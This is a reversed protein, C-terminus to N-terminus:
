GTSALFREIEILVAQVANDLQLLADTADTGNMLAREVQAALRRVEPLALNAAVGSLKHALAQAEPLNGLALSRNMGGVTDGYMDVFLQLYERYSSMDLWLKLGQVVDMVAVDCAVAKPLQADPLVDGAGTQGGTAPIARRCLRQILAITSPVDFPKSIFHSM